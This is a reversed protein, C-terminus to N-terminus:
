TVSQREGSHKTLSVVALAAAIPGIAPFFNGTM